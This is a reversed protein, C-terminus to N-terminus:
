PKDEPVSDYVETYFEAMGDRIAQFAEKGKKTLEITVYRRDSENTERKVLKQKVLKSVMLSMTSNDVELLDALKTLSLSGAKGIELIINCQTFTLGCCVLVSSQVKAIQKQFIDIEDQLTQKDM